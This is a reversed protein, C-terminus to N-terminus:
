KEQKDKLYLMYEILCVVFWAVFWISETRSIGIGNVNIFLFRLTLLLTLGDLLGWESNPIHDRNRRKNGLYVVLKVLCVIIWVVFWALEEMREIRDFNVVFLRSTFLIVMVDLLGFKLKFKFM